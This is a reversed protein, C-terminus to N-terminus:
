QAGQGAALGQMLAMGTKLQAVSLKLMDIAVQENM